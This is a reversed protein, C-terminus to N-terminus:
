VKETARLSPHRDADLAICLDARGTMETLIHETIRQYHQIFRDVGADDLTAALGRGEAALSARLKQEQEGRWASVVGFGPAALLVLYDVRAFLRRYDSALRANVWHRWIGDRDEEAELANVPEALAPESEPVAGVCWGEFLVLDVPATVRTWETEPRRTDDEKAFRPLAVRGERGLAALVAEGLAVDHTGPVGRTRLLPHVEVAVAEREERPLYLDDISLLAVKLGTAEFREKLGASVTSKGSGQAGCLGVVFPRRGGGALAARVRPEILDIAESALEASM